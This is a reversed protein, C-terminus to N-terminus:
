DNGGGGSVDHYFYDNEATVTDGTQWNTPTYSM